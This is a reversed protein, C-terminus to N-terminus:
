GAPLAATSPKAPETPATRGLTELYAIIDSRTKEDPIAVQMATGPVKQLSSTLWADLTKADWTLQSHSLAPTYTFGPLTGAKREYVAALSPGFGQGGPVTSHCVACQSEFATKGAAADGDAYASNALLVLGLAFALLMAKTRM